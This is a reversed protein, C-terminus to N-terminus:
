ARSDKRGQTTRQHCLLSPVGMRRSASCNETEALSEHVRQAANQGDM